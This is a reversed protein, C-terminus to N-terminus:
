LSGRKPFPPKWPPITVEKEFYLYTTNRQLEINVRYTQPGLHTTDIKMNFTGNLSNERSSLTIFKYERDNNKIIFNAILKQEGVSIGISHGEITVMQNEIDFFNYISDASSLLDKGNIIIKTANWNGELNLNKSNWLIFFIGFSVLTSIIVIKIIKM